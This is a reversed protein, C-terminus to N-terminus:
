THRIRSVVERQQCRLKEAQLKKLAEGKRPVWLHRLSTDWKLTKLFVFCSVRVKMAAMAAAVM